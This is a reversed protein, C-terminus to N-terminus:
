QMYGVSSTCLCDIGNFAAFPRAPIAVKPNVKSAGGVRSGRESVFMVTLCSETM